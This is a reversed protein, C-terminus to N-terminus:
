TPIRKRHRYYYGRTVKGLRNVNANAKADTLLVNNMFIKLTQSVICSDGWDIVLRIQGIFIGM